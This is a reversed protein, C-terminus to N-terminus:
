KHLLNGNTIFTDSVLLHYSVRCLYMTSHCWAFLHCFYSLRTASVIVVCISSGSIPLQCSFRVLLLAISFPTASGLLHSICCIPVFLVLCYSFCSNYSIYYTTSSANYGSLILFLKVIFLIIDPLATLNLFLEYQLFDLLVKRIPM